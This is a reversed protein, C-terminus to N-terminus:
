SQHKWVEFKKTYELVSARAAKSYGLDELLQQATELRDREKQELDSVVETNLLKKVLDGIESDLKARIAIALEPVTRWTAQYTKALKVRLDRAAQCDPELDQAQCELAMFEDKKDSLITTLSRRFRLEDEDLFGSKGKGLRFLDLEKLLDDNVPIQKHKPHKVKSEGTAWAQAHLVYDEFLEQAREEYDPCFAHLIQTKLLRRYESEILGPKKTTAEQTWTEGIVPRGGLWMQCRELVEMQETTLNSTDTIAYHIAQRLLMIAELATVSSDGGKRKKAKMLGYQNIRSLLSMMFRMDLGVLGEDSGINNIAFMPTLVADDPLSKASVRYSSSRGNGALGESGSYRGSSAEVSPEYGWIEKWDSSSRPKVKVDEGQLLRMRDIPHIFFKEKEDPVAYRSMVALTAIMKLALPGFRAVEDYRKLETEYARVEEVRFLNYPLKLQDARGTFADKDPLSDLFKALSHKNTTAFMFVDLPSAAVTAEASSCLGPLRRYQTADLLILREDTKGPEVERELFADPMSIFGRNSRRLASVLSCDQGPKWEFIGASRSTLRIKEVMVKALSPEEEKSGDLDGMVERYCHQCPSNATQMLHELEEFPMDIAEAVKALSGEPLLKLLNLPNEHDPCGKVAYVTASRELAREIGDKFYDKGAGPGGEVILMKKLQAGNAAAPELFRKLLRNAFLQSGCVHYFARWSPIGAQELVQLFRKREPDDEKKFDEKGMDHIARLVVAPATSVSGVNGKLDALFQPFPIPDGSLPELGLAKNLDGNPM